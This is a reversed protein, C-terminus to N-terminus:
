KAADAKKEAEDAWDWTWREEVADDGNLKTDDHALMRWVCRRKTKTDEDEFWDLYRKVYTKSYIRTVRNYAWSNTPGGGSSSASM